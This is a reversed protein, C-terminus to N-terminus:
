KDLVDYDVRVAEKLKKLGPTHRRQLWQEEHLSTGIFEVSSDIIPPCPAPPHFHEISFLIDQLQLRLARLEPHFDNAVSDAM